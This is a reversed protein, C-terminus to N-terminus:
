GKPNTQRVVMASFGATEAKIREYNRQNEAVLNKIQLDRLKVEEELMRVQSKYRQELRELEDARGRMVNWSDVLSRWM